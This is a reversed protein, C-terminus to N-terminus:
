NTPVFAVKDGYNLGHVATNLLHNDIVGEFGLKGELKIEQCNKIWFAESGVSAKAYGDKNTGSVWSFTSLFNLVIM